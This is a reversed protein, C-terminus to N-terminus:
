ENVVAFARVPSGTGQDLLLPVGYFMFEGKGILATLNVLWEYHTLGLDRCARHSPFLKTDMIDTSPGEVGHIHSGHDYLWRVAEPSIEPNQTLAKTDPYYREHIGTALLVIHGDITVGCSKEAQEMDAATITGREPIHTMDLCVAKGFFLDLPMHDITLGDPRMHYYSDVHTGVHEVISLYNYSSTIPDEKTGNGLAISQEHTMAKLYIPSPFCNPTLMNNEIRLTLDIIKKTM